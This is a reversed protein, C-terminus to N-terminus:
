CVLTVPARAAAPREHISIRGHRRWGTRLLWSGASAVVACARQATTPTMEAERWGTFTGGSSFEDPRSDRRSSTHRFVNRLVYVLCNRVEQPSTLDRRHYRERFVSGRRNWLTNLNKAMRVKLSKMGAALAEKDEAEVIMHVHDRQVSFECIRTGGLDNAGAIAREIVEFAEATRLSPLGALLKVTVHM